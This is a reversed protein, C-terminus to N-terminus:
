RSPEPKAGRRKTVQGAHRAPERAAEQLLEVMDPASAIIACDLPTKGDVTKANVDAGNEILLRAIAPQGYTAARHLPTSKKHDRTNVVAGNTILLEAIDTHGYAAAKHLTTSDWNDRANVNAGAEIAARVREYPSLDFADLLEKDEQKM